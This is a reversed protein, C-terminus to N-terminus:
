PAEVPFLATVGDAAIEGGEIATVPLKELTEADYLELAYFHQRRCRRWLHYAAANRYVGHHDQGPDWYLTAADGEYPEREVAGLEHITIAM